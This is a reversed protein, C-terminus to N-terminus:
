RCARVISMSSTTWLTAYSARDYLTFARGERLRVEGDLSTEVAKLYLDAPDEVHIASWGNSGDGVTHARGAQRVLGALVHMIDSGGNGYVLGPRVVITRIEREM